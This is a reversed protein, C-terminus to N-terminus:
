AYKRDVKHNKVQRLIYVGYKKMLCPHQENSLCVVIVYHVIISLVYLLFISERCIM